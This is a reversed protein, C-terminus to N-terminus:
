KTELHASILNSVKCFRSKKNSNQVEDKVKTMTKASLKMMIAGFKEL